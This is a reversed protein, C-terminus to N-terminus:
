LLAAQGSEATAAPKEGDKGFTQLLCGRANVCEQNLNMPIAFKGYKKRGRAPSQGEM